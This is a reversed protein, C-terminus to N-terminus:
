EFVAKRRIALEGYKGDLLQEFSTRRYILAHVDEPGFLLIVKEGAFDEVQKPTGRTFGSMSALIGWVGVRNGLKGYLERVVAAGIPNREWKCEVLYYERGRSVIVDMEEHATRAGEVPSWGEQAVAKAFLRQLARGRPHPQLHSIDELEQALASQQRWQAVAELGSRTLKFSGNLPTEVYGLDTLLQLNHLVFYSDGATESALEEIHKSALHGQHDFVEGLLALLRTRLERSVKVQAEPVIGREEASIIGEARIRYNEGIGWPRICGNDVLAHVAKDYTLHDWGKEAPMDRLTVRAENRFWGDYLAQLIVKEIESQDIMLM